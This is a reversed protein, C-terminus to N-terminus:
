MTNCFYLMNMACIPQAAMPTSANETNPGPHSARLKARAAEMPKMITVREVCGGPLVEFTTAPALKRM